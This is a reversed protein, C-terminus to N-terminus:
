KEHKSLGAFPAWILKEAPMMEIPRGRKTKQATWKASTFATPEAPYEPNRSYNMWAQTPKWQKPAFDILPLTGPFQKQGEFKQKETNYYRYKGDPQKFSKLHGWRDRYLMPNEEAFPRGTDLNIGSMWGFVTRVFPNFASPVRLGEFAPDYNEGFPYWGITEGVTQNHIATLEVIDGFLEFGAKLPDVSPGYYYLAGGSPGTGEAPLHGQEDAQLQKPVQNAASIIATKIPYDAPITKAMNAAHRAWAWIPFILQLEKQAEYSMTSYDGYVGVIKAQLRKVEAPKALRTQLEELTADVDMMKAILDKVPPSATRANALLDGISRGKAQVAAKLSFDPTLQMPAKTNEPNMLMDAIAGARRQYNHFGYGHESKLNMVAKVKQASRKFANALRTGANDLKSDSFDAILFPDFHGGAHSKLLEAPFMKAARPDRAIVGAAMMAVLDKPNRITFGQIIATRIAMMAEFLPDLGFLLTTYLRNAGSLIKGGQSEMASQRFSNKKHLGQGLAGQLIKAAAPPLWVTADQTPIQEVIADFDENAFDRLVEKMAQKVNVPHWGKIHQKSGMNQVERIIGTLAQFQLVEAYRGLMADKANLTHFGAVRPSKMVGAQWDPVQAGRRTKFGKLSDIPEPGTIPVPRIRSSKRLKAFEPREEEPLNFLNPTKRLKKRLEVDALTVATRLRAQANGGLPSAYADTMLAEAAKQSIIPVYAPLVPDFGTTKKAQRIAGLANMHRDTYLDQFTYPHSMGRIVSLARNARRQAVISASEYVKAQQPSVAGYLGKAADAAYQAESWFKRYIQGLRLLKAKRIEELRKLYAPGYQTVLKVSDPIRLINEIDTGHKRLERLAALAGPDRGLDHMAKSDTQEAFALMPSERWAPPLKKWARELGRQAEQLKGLRTSDLGQVVSRVHNAIRDGEILHELSPHLGRAAFKTPAAATKLMAGGGLDLFTSLPARKFHEGLYNAIDGANESEQTIPKGYENWMYSAVGKAAEGLEPLDTSRLLPKEQGGLSKPMAEAGRIFPIAGIAGLTTGIQGVDNMFNQPIADPNRGKYPSEYGQELTPSSVRDKLPDYEFWSDSKPQPPTLDVGKAWEPTAAPPSLDVGQAWQPVPPTAAKPPSLDVGKAWDPVNDDAM